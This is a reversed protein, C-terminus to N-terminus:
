CFVCVCECRRGALTGTRDVFSLRASTSLLGPRVCEVPGSGTRGPLLLPGLRDRIAQTQQLIPTYRLRTACKSRSCPTAPEFGTVGVMMQGRGSTTSVSHGVCEPWAFRGTLGHIRPGQQKQRLRKRAIKGAAAACPKSSM